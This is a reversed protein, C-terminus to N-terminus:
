TFRWSPTRKCRPPWCGILSGRSLLFVDATREELNIEVKEIEAPELADMVMIELDNPQSEIVDVKEQMTTTIERMINTIRVNKRGLITGVPDVNDYESASVLLKSRSGGERVIKDIIVIGSEVEPIENRIVAIVFDPHTRSLQIKPTVKIM